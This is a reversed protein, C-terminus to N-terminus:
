TEVRKVLTEVEHRMKAAWENGAQPGNNACRVWDCKELILKVDSALGGGRQTNKLAIELEGPTLGAGDVEHWQSLPGRLFEAVVNSLDIVGQPHVVEIAKIRQVFEHATRARVQQALEETKSDVKSMTAWVRSGARYGPLLLGTFGLLLPILWANLPITEVSKEDRVEPDEGIVVSGVGVVTAPVQVAEATMDEAEVGGPTRVFYYLNFTPITLQSALSDYTTIQLVVELLRQDAVFSTQRAKVDRVIFPELDINEARLNEVIFEVDAPHVVRVTYQLLDGVWLTTRDLHTTAVLPERESTDQGLAASVMVIQLLIFSLLATKRM